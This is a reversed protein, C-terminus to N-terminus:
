CSTDLPEVGGLRCLCRHLCIARVICLRCYERRSVQSRLTVQEIEVRGQLQRGFAVQHRNGLPGDAQDCRIPQGLRQRQEMGQYALHGLVVYCISDGLLDSRKRGFLTDWARSPRTGCPNTDPYRSRKPCHKYNLLQFGRGFLERRFEDQEKIKAIGEQYYLDLPTEM